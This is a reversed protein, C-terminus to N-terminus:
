AKYESITINSLTIGGFRRAGAAGNFTTTGAASAGARIRFTTASTTGATMTYQLTLQRRISASDSTVATAALANATSDQFLAVVLDAVATTAGTFVATIVLKNTTSKPTIAQTMYEDGETIQPITDDYPLITTGTAVASFNASVVQVPFGTAVKAYTIGSDDALKSTAIAAASKINANDINGNFENVVTTLPTNYQSVTGTSGDAPLSVTVTAM